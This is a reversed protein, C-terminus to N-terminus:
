GRGHSGKRRSRGIIAIGLVFAAGTAGAVLLWSRPIGRVITKRQRGFAFLRNRRMYELVPPDIALTSELEEVSATRIKTSSIDTLMPPHHVEVTALLDETDPKVGLRDVVVMNVIQLLEESNRWKGMKLDQYTDTGVLFSFEVGPHKAMLFQVLDYSSTRAKGSKGAGSNKLEKQNWLFVEQEARTVVVKTTKTSHREFALRCMEVRDDYTVSSNNEMDNRKSAFMHVYVPLM